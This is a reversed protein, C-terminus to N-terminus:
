GGAEVNVDVLDGANLEFSVFISFGSVLWDALEVESSIRFGFVGHGFIFEVM